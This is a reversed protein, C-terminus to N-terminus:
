SKYSEQNVFNKLWKPIKRLSKPLKTHTASVRETILTRATEVSPKYSVFGQTGRIIPTIILRKIEM